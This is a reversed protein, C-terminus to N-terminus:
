EEVFRIRKKLVAVEHEARRKEVAHIVLNCLEHFQAVIQTTDKKLYFTAGLNLAQIAVEERSRRTYIIFPITEDKKRVVELLELGDMFDMQYDSIIAEISNGEIMRLAEEASTATILKIEPKSQCAFDCAAQLLEEEDDVFLVRITM